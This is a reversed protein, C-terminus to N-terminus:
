KMNSINAMMLSSGGGFLSDETQMAARSTNTAAGVNINRKGNGTKNYRRSGQMLIPVDLPTAYAGPGPQDSRKNVQSNFHEQSDKRSKSFTYQPSTKSPSEDRPVQWEYNVNHSGPGPSAISDGRINKSIIADIHLKQM